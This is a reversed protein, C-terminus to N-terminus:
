LGMTKGFLSWSDSDAGKIKNNQKSKIKFFIEQRDDIEWPNKKLLEKGDKKESEFVKVTEKSVFNNEM